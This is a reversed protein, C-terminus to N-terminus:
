RRVVLGGIVTLIGLTGGVAAILVAARALQAPWQGHEPGIPNARLTFWAFGGGLVALLVCGIGWVVMVTDVSGLSYRSGLAFSQVTISMTGQGLMSFIAFALGAISTSTPTLLDSLRLRAPRHASEEDYEYESM